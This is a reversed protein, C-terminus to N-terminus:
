EPLNDVYKSPTQGNLDFASDGPNMTLNNPNLTENGQIYKSDAFNSISPTAGDLNSLNSGLTLLKNLLGM